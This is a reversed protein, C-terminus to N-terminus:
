YLCRLTVGTGQFTAKEEEGGAMVEVPTVPLRRVMKSVLMSSSDPQSSLRRRRGTGGVGRRALTNGTGDDDGTTGGDEDGNM